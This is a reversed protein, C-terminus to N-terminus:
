AIHWFPCDTFATKPEGFDDAGSYRLVHDGRRLERDVAEVTAVFRPDSAPLLGVEAALLVSADLAEGGFAGTLAQRDENWAKQLITDKVEDARERWMRARDLRALREGIKALRDCAAWSMFASSTHVEARTRYEWIGADPQDHVKYAREGVRELQEFDAVGAPHLLRDDFFAQTSALVVHGYVDHQIHEAAQNGLRVPAHDRYGPLDPMLRETLDDELGVGYVPQIHGGEAHAIINRLYGLYHELTGVASLRNLAAVTFYADRPWCYRYDWNRESGEHEPISSTLAAVIGGTEEYVCLKLTIAARIVAEQWELPVALRRAWQRWHDRTREEWDRAMVDAADSLSEDPGCLFDIPHVLVFEREDMLYSLTANTTVRFSAEGDGFRVHSVGRVATMRAANWDHTPRLRVKVRPRGKLPRLRRVFAAPRFIRGRAGFRPVFDTIELVCGDDAELETRLIATNRDYSQRSAVFGRLEVDFLGDGGLLSNFIPDGDFRPLCLWVYRGREDILGAVSGNGIVGLELDSM